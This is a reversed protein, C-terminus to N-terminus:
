ETDIRDAPAGIQVLVTEVADLMANPACAFFQFRQLRGRYTVPSSEATLYGTEATWDPPPEELV